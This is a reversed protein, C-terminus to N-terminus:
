CEKSIENVEEVWITSQLWSYNWVAFKPRKPAQLPFHSFFTIKWSKKLSSRRPRLHHKLYTSINKRDKSPTKIRLVCKPGTYSECYFIDNEDWFTANGWYQPLAVNQPSFWTKYQSNYVPGFHIRPRLIGELPGSFMELYTFCWRLHGLLLKLFDHFIM